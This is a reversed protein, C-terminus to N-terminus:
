SAAISELEQVLVSLTLRMALRQPRLEQGMTGPLGTQMRTWSSAARELQARKPLETEMQSWSIQKEEVDETDLVARGGSGQLHVPETERGRDQAM